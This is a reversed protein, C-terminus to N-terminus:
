TLRARAQEILINMGARIDISGFGNRALTEITLKLLEGQTRRQTPDDKELDENEYRNYAVDFLHAAEQARQQPGAIIISNTM